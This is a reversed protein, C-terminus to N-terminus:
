PVDVPYNGKFDYSDLYSTESQINALHLSYNRIRASWEIRRLAYQDLKQDKELPISVYVKKSKDLDWSNFLKAPLAWYGENEAISWVVFVVYNPDWLWKKVLDRKVRFKKGKRGFSIKKEVTKVQLHVRFADMRGNISTQAIIDEGYDSYNKDCAWGFKACRTLIEQVGVDGIRHASPRRPM